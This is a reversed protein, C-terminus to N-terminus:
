RGRSRPRVSDAVAGPDRDFRWGEADRRLIVDGAPVGGERGGQVELHVRVADTALWTLDRPGWGVPDVAREGPAEAGAFDLEWEQRVGDEGVRWIELVNSSYADLASAFVAFRRDDPSVVPRSAIEHRRGTRGDVLQYGGGEYHQVEILHQRLSPLFGLYSYRAGGVGYRDGTRDEVAVSDGGPIRIVFTSDRRALGPHGHRLQFAEVAQACEYTNTEFMCIRHPVDGYSPWRVSDSAIAGERSDDES